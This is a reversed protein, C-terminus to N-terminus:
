DFKFKGLFEHGDDAEGTVYAVCYKSRDKERDQGRFKKLLEYHIDSYRRELIPLRNLILRWYLYDYITDMDTESLLVNMKTIYEPEVLNVYDAPRFIDLFNSWNFKNGTAQLESITMKNYMKTPDRRKDAPTNIRALAIEFNIIKEVNRGIDDANTINLFKDDSMLHFIKKATEAYAVRVSQHVSDNKLYYDESKSGLGLKAQDLVLINTTVNREDASVYPTIISSVGFSLWLKAVLSELPITNEMYNGLKHKGPFARELLDFLPKSSVNEISEEDM